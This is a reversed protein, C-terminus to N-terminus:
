LYKPCLVTRTCAEEKKKRRGRISSQEKIQSLIEQLNERRSLRIKAKKLLSEGRM